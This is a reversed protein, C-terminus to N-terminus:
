LETPGDKRLGSDEYPDYKRVEKERVLQKVGVTVKLDKPDSFDIKCIILSHQTRLIIAFYV